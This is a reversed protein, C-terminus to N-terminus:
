SSILTGIILLLSFIFHHLAAQRMGKKISNSTPKIYTMLRYSVPFALLVVSATFPLLDTMILIFVSLYAAIVILILLWYAKVHGIRIAITKRTSQDKNIDRINNTLIMSAILFCFPLALVLTETTVFGIQIYSAIMIPFWGLSFISTVEGLGLTSLSSRGASYFYGLVLGTIGIAIIVLSTRIALWLTLSSCVIVLGIFVLPIQQLYPTVGIKGQAVEFWKGEEQGKLFDFYDNLMNVAMQVMVGIVLFLLFHQYNIAEWDGGSAILTGYIMPMISGTLTPPRIVKWWSGQYKYTHNLQRYGFLGIHKDM